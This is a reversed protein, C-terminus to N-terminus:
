PMRAPVSGGLAGADFQQDAVGPVADLRDVQQVGQLFEAVGPGLDDLDVVDADADVAVKQVVPVADADVPPEQGDRVPEQGDAVGVIVVASLM